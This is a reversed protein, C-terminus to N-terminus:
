SMCYFRSVSRLDHELTMQTFKMPGFKLLAEKAIATRSAEDREEGEGEGVKKWDGYELQSPFLDCLASM